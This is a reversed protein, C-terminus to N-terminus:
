KTDLPCSGVDVVDGNRAGIRVIDGRAELREIDRAFVLDRSKVEDVLPQMAASCRAPTFGAWRPALSRTLEWTPALDPWPRGEVLSVRYAWLRRLLTFLPLVMDFSERSDDPVEDGFKFGGSPIDVSWAADERFAAADLRHCLFLFRDSGLELNYANETVM